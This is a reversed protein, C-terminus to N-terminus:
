KEGYLLIVTIWTGNPGETPSVELLNYSSQIVGPWYQPWFSQNSFARCHTPDGWADPSKYYPVVIYARGGPKLIRAFERQISVLNPLHELIHSAFIADFSNEAFCSLNGPGLDWHIDAKVDPNGDLNTWGDVYDQGCGLNLVQKENIDFIDHRRSAALTKTKMKHYESM